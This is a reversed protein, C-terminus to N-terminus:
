SIKFHKKLSEKAEAYEMTLIRKPGERKYVKLYAMIKFCDELDKKSIDIEKIQILELIAATSEMKEGVKTNEASYLMDLSQDFKYWKKFNSSKM